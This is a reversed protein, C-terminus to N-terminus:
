KPLREILLAELQQIQQDQGRLLTNIEASEEKRLLNLKDQLLEIELEPKQNVEYYDKFMMGTNPENTLPPDLQPPEAVFPDRYQSGTPNEL